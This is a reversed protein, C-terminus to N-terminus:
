IYRHETFLFQILTMNCDLSTKEYIQWGNCSQLASLSELRTKCQCFTKSQCAKPKDDNLRSNFCLQPLSFFNTVLSFTTSKQGEMTVAFNYIGLVISQSQLLTNLWPKFWPNNREHKLKKTHFYLFFIPPPIAAGDNEATPGILSPRQSSCSVTLFAGSLM